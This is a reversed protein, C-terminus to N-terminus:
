TRTGSSPRNASRAGSVAMVLAASVGAVLGALPGAVSRALWWVLGVAMVGLLAIEGVVAVPDSGSVWAAPALVYYYLAGHHFEGISTPPGLLPWAGEQVLRLLVLM